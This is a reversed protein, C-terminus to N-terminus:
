LTGVPLLLGLGEANWGLGRTVQGPRTEEEAAGQVVQGERIRGAGGPSQAEAASSRGFSLHRGARPPRELRWGPGQLRGRATRASWIRRGGDCWNGTEGRPGTGKVGAGSSADRTFLAAGTWYLTPFSGLTTRALPFSPSPPAAPARSPPSGGNRVSGREKLGWLGLSCTLYCSRSKHNSDGFALTHFFM